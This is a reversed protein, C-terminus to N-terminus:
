CYLGPELLFHPDFCLDIFGCCSDFQHSDKGFIQSEVIWKNYSWPLQM